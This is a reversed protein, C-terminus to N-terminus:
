GRAATPFFLVGSPTLAGHVPQDHAQTPVTELVEGDHVVALVLADGRARTLARDYSGGGRGLRNGVQDVALAPVLIVDVEAIADRGLTPEAPEVTGRLGPMTVTEATVPGWDLDSDSTLVPVIVRFQSRVLLAILLGTAPETGMSLYTAVATKPAGFQASFHARFQGRFASALAAAVATREALSRHARAAVLQARLMAKARVSELPDASESSTV